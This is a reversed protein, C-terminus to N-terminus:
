RHGSIKEKHKTIQSILKDVLEDIAIYMDTSKATAHIDTGNMAITAEAIHTLNEIQLIINVSAINAHRRELRQFKEEAHTKIAPTLELNRGTFHLQM